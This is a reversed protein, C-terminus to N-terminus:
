RVRDKQIFSFFMAFVAHNHPPIAM